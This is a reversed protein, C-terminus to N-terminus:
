RIFSSPGRLFKDRRRRIDNHVDGFAWEYRQPTLGQPTPMGNVLVFLPCKGERLAEDYEVLAFSDSALIKETTTSVDNNVVM